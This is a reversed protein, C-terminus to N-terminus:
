RENLHKLVIGTFLKSTNESRQSYTLKSAAVRHIFGLKRITQSNGCTIPSM